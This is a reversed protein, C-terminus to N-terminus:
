YTIFSYILLRYSILAVFLPFFIARFMCVHRYICKINVNFCLQVCPFDASFVLQFSLLVYMYFRVMIKFPELLIINRLLMEFSFGLCNNFVDVAM